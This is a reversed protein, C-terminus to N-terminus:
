LRKNTASLELIYTFYKPMKKLVDTCVLRISFVFDGHHRRLHFAHTFVQTLSLCVRFLILKIIIKLSLILEIKPVFVESFKIINIDCYNFTFIFIIIKQLRM